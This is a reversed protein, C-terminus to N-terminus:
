IGTAQKVYEAYSGLETSIDVELDDQDAEIAMAKYLKAAM